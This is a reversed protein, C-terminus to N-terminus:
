FQKHKFRWNKKIVTYDKYKIREEYWEIEGNEELRKLYDEENDYSDDGEDIIGKQYMLVLIEDDFWDSYYYPLKCAYEYIAKTINHKACAIKLADYFGCTSGLHTYLNWYTAIYNKEKIKFIRDLEDRFTTLFEDTLLWKKKNPIKYKYIVKVELIM